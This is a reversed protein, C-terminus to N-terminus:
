EDKSAFPLILADCAINKALQIADISAIARGKDHKARKFVAELTKAYQESAERITSMDKKTEDSLEFWGNTMAVRAEIPDVIPVRKSM